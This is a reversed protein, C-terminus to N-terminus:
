DPAHLARNLQDRLERKLVKGYSNKPLSDVFFYAKPRKFRAICTHCHSDLEVPTLQTGSNAVVFAVVVEGWEQDHRGVVCAEAIGPHSLLAEEVERPYINSGGSIIVDKSRDRLTLMGKDNFMGQDGTYLWGDRLAEATAAPNNWYGSMVSDSRCLIEGIDGPPLVTNDSGVVVVEVGTRPFGVSGLIDDGADILDSQRLGTITMPVEGQGYIQAFIPGFLDLSKKIEEVYMPGGGYVICRLNAPRVGSHEAELRLRQVMTPALFAGCSPHFNCLELFEAPDYAGSVPVVQRAGRSIYAPIYLGSGHSMPAAHIQSANEDFHEIDALHCITMAMLNRHSLMAGKPRGTTGSTYFLWALAEPELSSPALVNKDFLQEYANQGMTVISCREPEVTDNLALALSPSAFAVSAGSDDLIHAMEKVHLKYNVPVFVMGAAWIGFMLEVIEPRNESAVAIRSGPALMRRLGTALELARRHLEAYTSQATHGHYVAIHEPFRRASQELLSFLNM